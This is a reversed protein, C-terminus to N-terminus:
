LSQQMAQISTSDICCSHLLVTYCCQLISNEELIKAIHTHTLMYVVISHKSCQNYRHMHIQHVCLEMIHKNFLMQTLLAIVKELDSSRESGWSCYLSTGWWLHTNYFNFKILCAVMLNLLWGTNLYAFKILKYRCTYKIRM